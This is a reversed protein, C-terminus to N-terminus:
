HWAQRKTSTFDNNTHYVTSVSVNCKEGGHADSWRAAETQALLTPATGTQWPAQCTAWRPLVSHWLFAPWDVTLSWVRKQQGPKHQATLSFQMFTSVFQICDLHLHVWVHDVCRSVYVVANLLLRDGRWYIYPQWFIRMFISTSAKM